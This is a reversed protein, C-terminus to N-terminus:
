RAHLVGMDLVDIPEYCLQPPWGLCYDEWNGRSAPGRTPDRNPSTALIDEQSEWPYEDSKPPRLRTSSAAVNRASGTNFGRRCSRRPESCCRVSLEATGHLLSGGLPDERCPELKIPHMGFSIWYKPCFTLVTINDNRNPSYM